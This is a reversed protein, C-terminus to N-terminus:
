PRGNRRKRTKPRQRERYQRGLKMAEKHAQDGAFSGAIEKWWRPPVPPAKGGKRKLRELESELHILRREIESKTMTKNRYFRVLACVFVRQEDSRGV